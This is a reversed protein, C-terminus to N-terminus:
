PEVHNFVDFHGQALTSNDHSTVALGALVQAGMPVTVSGLPQWTVGDESSSSTFFNGARALRLWKPARGAALAANATLGGTQERYQMAMGRGPSVIVMVHKAGAALSERFMVGAKAWAHTNEISRV